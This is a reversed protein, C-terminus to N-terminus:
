KDDDREMLKNLRDLTHELQVRIHALEVAKDPVPPPPRQPRQPQKDVLDFGAETVIAIAEDLSKESEQAMFEEEAEIMETVLSIIETNMSHRNARARAEIKRRLKEPFRLKLQVTDTPKRAVGDGPNRHVVYCSDFPAAIVGNVFAASFRVQHWPTLKVGPPM